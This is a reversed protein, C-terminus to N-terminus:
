PGTRDAVGIEFAFVGSKDGRRIQDSQDLPSVPNQALSCQCTVIVGGAPPPGQSM